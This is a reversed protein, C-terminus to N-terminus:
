EYNNMEYFKTATGPRTEMHYGYPDSKMITSGNQGTIAYKYNTYQEIKDTIETEWLSDSIKYMPNKDKNWGNFDGVVSVSVAHPAWVRFVVTDEDIRHSGMFEYSKANNGQHFLYVPVSLDERKVSM